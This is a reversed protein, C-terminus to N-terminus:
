VSPTRGLHARLFTALQDVTPHEYLITPEFDTEFRENLAGMMQFAGASDLGFRDFAITGDVEAPNIKLVKALEEKICPGIEDNTTAHAEKSM